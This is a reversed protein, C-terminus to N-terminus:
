AAEALAPRRCVAVHFRPAGHVGALAAPVVPFDAIGPAALGELRAFVAGPRPVHEIAEFCCIVDWGGGTAGLAQCDDVAFSVRDGGHRRWSEEVANRDADIGHVEAAGAARLLAAGYGAGCGLDLVRRGAVRDAAFLYRALHPAALAAWEPSEPEAREVNM